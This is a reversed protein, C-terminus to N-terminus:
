ERRALAEATVRATIDMVTGFVAIVRGDADRECYGHGELHRLQGDSLVIV